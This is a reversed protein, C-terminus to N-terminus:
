RWSFIIETDNGVVDCNDVKLMDIKWSAFLAIDQKMFYESSNHAGGCQNIGANTYHGYKLGLSHIYDIPKEIGDPFKTPDPLLFGTENRQSVYVGPAEEVTWIWGGDINIRNYGADNLGTSILLDAM